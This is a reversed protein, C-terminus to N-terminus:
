TDRKNGAGKSVKTSLHLLEDSGIQLTLKATGQYTNSLSVSAFTTRVLPRLPFHRNGMPALNNRVLWLGVLYTCSM